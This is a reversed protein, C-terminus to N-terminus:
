GSRQEAAIGQGFADVLQYEMGPVVEGALADAQGFRAEDVDDRQAEANGMRILVIVNGQHDGRPGPGGIAAASRCCVDGDGDFVLLPSRTMSPKTRSYPLRSSRQSCTIAAM